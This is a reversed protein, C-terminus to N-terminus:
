FSGAGGSRGRRSSAIQDYAGLWFPSENFPLSNLPGEIMAQLLRCVALFTTKGSSNEGVLLTIPRTVVDQPEYFCRIGEFQLRLAM